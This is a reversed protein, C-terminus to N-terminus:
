MCRTVCSASRALTPFGLLAFPTGWKYLNGNYFYGMKTDTWHLKDSIGYRELLAFLPDDTKCIFHYYREIPLGDFDFTASMGGIRDDREYIDVQHGADLLRVAAMLGMPGAGVIAYNKKSTM